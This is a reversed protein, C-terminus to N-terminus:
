RTSRTAKVPITPGFLEAQWLWAELRLQLWIVLVWFVDGRWYTRWKCEGTGKRMLYCTFFFPLQWCFHGGEESSLLLPFRMIAVMLTLNLPPGALRPQLALICPVSFCWWSQFLFPIKSVLHRKSFWEIQIFPFSNQYSPLTSGVGDGLNVAKM